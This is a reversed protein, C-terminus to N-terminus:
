VQSSSLPKPYLARFTYLAAIFGILNGPVNQWHRGLHAGAIFSFTRRNDQDPITLDPPWLSYLGLGFMVAVLWWICCAGLIAGIHRLYTSV